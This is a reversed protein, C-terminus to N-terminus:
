GNASQNIRFSARVGASDCWGAGTAVPSPGPILAELSELM